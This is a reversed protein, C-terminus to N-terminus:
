EKSFEKKLNKMFAGVNVGGIVVGTNNMKTIADQMAPIDMHQLKGASEFDGNAQAKELQRQLYQLQEQLTANPPPGGDPLKKNVAEGAARAHDKMNQTSAEAAAATQEKAIKSAAEKGEHAMKMVETAKEEALKEATTQFKDVKLVVRQFTRNNSLGKVIIDTAIWSLFQGFIKGAM